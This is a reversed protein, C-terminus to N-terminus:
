LAPRLRISPSACKAYIRTLADMGPHNPVDGNMLYQYGAGVTWPALGLARAISKHRSVQFLSPRLFSWYLGLRSCRPAFASRLDGIGSTDFVGLHGAAIHRREIGSHFVRFLLHDDDHNMIGVAWSNLEHSFTLAVSDLDDINQQESASDFIPVVGDLEPGILCRRDFSKAVDECAKRSTGSVLVQTYFNGM